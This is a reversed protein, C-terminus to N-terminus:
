RKVYMWKNDQRVRGLIRRRVLRIVSASLTTVEYIGGKESLANKVEVLGKPSDFFGEERLEFIMDGISMKEKKTEKVEKTKQSKMPTDEEILGLIRKVEKETGDIVIRTGDKKNIEAKVM